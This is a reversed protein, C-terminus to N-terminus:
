RHDKGKSIHFDWLGANASFPPKPISGQLENRAAKAAPKNEFPGKVVKGSSDKVVFLELGM